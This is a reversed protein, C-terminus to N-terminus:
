KMKQNYYKLKWQNHKIKQSYNKKNIKKNYLKKNFTKVNKNNKKQLKLYNQYKFKIVKYKIKIIMKMKMLNNKSNM